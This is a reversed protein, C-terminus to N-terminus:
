QTPIRYQYEPIDKEGNNLIKNGLYRFSGDKELKVTLEHTIVADNCIVMDCVADVTLTVTGDANEKIDTVEPLSTGFYTPAYSVCGLGAYLYTQNKEDFAAYERIEEVTIPLYEVILSEFEQKPIGDPYYEPNFNKNYKMAYLFEFIANYDLKDLHNVDWDSCLLNNGQYGIGQVCKESLERQEETMPKVRILCSGDVIESVEPYEPVCLKYCFWGKDSYRWEKIKMYSAHSVEVDNKENWAANICFVYMDTGDFIYETRGIGGHSRIEYVVITSCKGELCAELFNEMKDYNKMDSYLITTYVPAGAEGLKNQMELIIEDSLIGKSETMDAQEYVDSILAMKKKCDYEAEQKKKDDIPFDNGKGWQEAITDNKQGAITPLELEKQEITNSLYRFTGDDFPQVVITNTFACDSNYDPWVGDVRLSITGDANETYDIVEGFPPYPKAYIMKYPYTNNNANYGCHERLQEVSVPFYTTMIREYQEAPIEWNEAKLKEGSYIHYIDEFMCPMLIDEVNSSDWNTVLMNYNVYSLGSIYKKTKERCDDSLPKIRYYQRLGALAIVTEYAYIFYGKATLNIETINNVSTGKIEPKGDEEWYVSVYYAQLQGRRYIFTIAGLLGDKQIEMITVMSDQGNLYDEYFSEVAKYNQMNVDASVSVFGNEGLKEVLMKRQQCNFESINNYSSDNTTKANEYMESVLDAASLAERQLQQEEDNGYIEEWKEEILRPRYWTAEKNNKDPIIRNSVYQVGRDEMPRIVVEHVYVKSNGAYPYVVNVTLAITGDGNETYGVVESYPYEPYEVEYFGRPKYEYTMNDSYYKTKSQLTESNINFYAMIVYEFEEKPIQYITGVGVNDDSVYPINRGNIQPYLICYIDYFDLEGFDDESWDTIFMNNREYTIPLLYKRNLERYAEELPEVRFAVHEEIGNLTMAYVVDSVLVGTFMLYGEETYNWNEAHYSGKFEKKINGNEYKYCSKIVDVNGGKTQLEYKFFGGLYNVEIITIEAEQGADVLECFRIVQEMNTMDVQNKSDVAPYGNDGFQKVINRITDLDDAANEEVANEYLKLCISILKEDDMTENIRVNEIEDAAEESAAEVNQKEEFPKISCGSIILLVIFSFGRLCKKWFLKINLVM